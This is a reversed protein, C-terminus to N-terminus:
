LFTIAFSLAIILFVIMKAVNGITDPKIASESQSPQIRQENEYALQAKQMKEYLRQSPHPLQKEFDALEQKARHAYITWLAAADKIEDSYGDTENTQLVTALDSDGIPITFPELGVNAQFNGVGKAIAKIHVRESHEQAINYLVTLAGYIDAKPYPLLKEDYFKEFDANEFLATIEQFITLAKEESVKSNNNDTM